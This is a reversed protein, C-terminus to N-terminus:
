ERFGLSDDGAHRGVSHWNTHAILKVPVLDGREPLNNRAGPTSGRMSINNKRCLKKAM